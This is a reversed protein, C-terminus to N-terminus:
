CFGSFFRASCQLWYINSFAFVAIGIANGLYSVVLIRKFQFRSFLGVASISGLFLGGFVLSLLTGLATEDLKLTKKINPSSSPLAGHDLNSCMNICFLLAFGWKRMSKTYVPDNIDFISVGKDIETDEEIEKLKIEKL